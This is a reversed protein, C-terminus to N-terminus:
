SSKNVIAFQQPRTEIERSPGRVGSDRPPNPDQVTYVVSGRYDGGQKQISALFANLGADVDAQTPPVRRYNEEKSFDPLAYAHLGEQLKIEPSPNREQDPTQGGEHETM